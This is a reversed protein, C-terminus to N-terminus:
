GRRLETARAHHDRVQFTACVATTDLLSPHWGTYLIQQWHGWEGKGDFKGCGCYRVRLSVAGCIDLVLLSSVKEPEDCARGEHGMQYVFGLDNLATKHWIQGSWRQVWHLPESAHDEVCCAKCLLGDGCRRCMLTGRPMREGARALIKCCSSCYMAYKKELGTEKFKTPIWDCAAANWEDLKHGPKSIHEHYLCNECLICSDCDICRFFRRPINAKPGLVVSCFDCKGGTIDDHGDEEDSSETSMEIESLSKHGSIDDSGLLATDSGLSLLTSAALYDDSKSILCIGPEEGGDDGDTNSVNADAYRRAALLTKIQAESHNKRGERKQRLGDTYRIRRTVKFNDFILAAM